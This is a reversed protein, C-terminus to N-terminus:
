MNIVICVSQVMPLPEAPDVYHGEPETHSEESSFDSDSSDDEEGLHLVLEDVSNEMIGDKDWYEEVHQLHECYKKLLHPTESELAKQAIEM